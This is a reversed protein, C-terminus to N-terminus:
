RIKVVVGNPLTRYDPSLPPTPTAPTVTRPLPTLEPLPELPPAVDPLPVASLEPAADPLLEIPPALSSQGPIPEVTTPTADPLAGSDGPVAGDSPPDTPTAGTTPPEEPTASMEELRRAEEEAEVRKRMAELTEIEKLQRQLFRSRLLNLLPEIDVQREPRAIDGSFHIPVYPQAQDSGAEGNRVVWQSAVTLRNVDFRADALIATAGADLSVTPISMIGSAVEFSGAARGLDVAGSGFLTAFTERAKTEDPDKPGEAAAMVATLAQPNLANIRGSDVSFSGSGTLTAVVGALSRGHGVVDFSADLTGSAIPLGSRIWVLDELAGGQLGGRLTLDVSGDGLTTALAGKLVGGALVASAVDLQLKGDAYQLGLKADKAALPVGLDLTAVNLKLDLSTGEPLAAGFPSDSWGDEGVGPSAGIAIGVLAPASVAALDLEGSLQMAPTFKATLTGGVPEGDFAGEDFTVGVADDSYELRGAASAAHGEGVGPVAVGALLLVSDIDASKATFDGAVSLMGDEVATAADYSVAVGAVSGTLKLKGGAALAGNFDADLVLPGSHVPLAGLGFQRLVTGSEEGDAHLKLSGSLTSLDDLSGTGEGQLTLHTAAFSGTLALSVHGGSDAAEASVEASVPSLIPAVDRLHRLVKNEPALTALFEAAGTFSEASISADVTGSPKGFPDRISGRATVRAGALDDVTLSRLDFEGSAFGGELVVTRADVGGASLVDAKLSLTLQEINGAALTKGTFLDALARAEDLDARDAGLDVSVIYHGSQQFRRIDVSGRMTGAGTTAAFSTLRQEGSRLDVDSEVTFQGIKTASGAEGRWWSAFAAPRRSAVRAHGAFTVEPAIGLTGKLGVETEGPLTASFDDVQWAREGTSLDASVAQVVAGRVVAGQVRLHLAGQISPMAVKPLKEALTLIASEITSPQDAGGLTRDVDIQRASITLDFRPEASFDVTGATQVILPRETGGYSLQMASVSLMTPELAFSGSARFDAWPSRPAAEDEPEVGVVTAKGEYRPPADTAFRLQGEAALTVPYRPSRVTLKTKVERDAVRGFGLTVAIPKGGLTLKGEARGPGMLSTAEVVADINQAHWERETEGQSLTASGDVIELRELSVHEPAPGHAGSLVGRNAALEGIDIHFDPREMTMQIVRVEGSLLPTLEIEARFREMKVDPAEADGVTVDTFSVVPTPLLRVNVKGGVTVPVGVYASAEREFTERYSTWDVFHPGILATFM